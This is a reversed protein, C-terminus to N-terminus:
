RRGLFGLFANVPNADALAKLPDFGDASTVAAMDGGVWQGNGVRMAVVTVDDNVFQRERATAVLKAAMDQASMSACAGVLKPVEEIGQVNNAFGDSFCLVVDGSEIPLEEYLGDDVRDSLFGEGALQYPAGNDHFRVGSFSVVEGQRIVMCQCDGITYCCAKPEASDLDMGVLLATSAGGYGNAAGTAQRLAFQAKQEFDVVSQRGLAELSSKALTQSYARSQPCQSVGDFVGYVSPPSVFFADKNEIPLLKSATSAGADVVRLGTAGGTLAAAM